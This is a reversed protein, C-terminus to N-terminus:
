PRQDRQRRDPAQRQHRLPQRPPARARGAAPIGAPRRRRATRALQRSTASPLCIMMAAAAQPPIWCGGSTVATCGGRCRRAHRAPRQRAAPGPGSASRGAQQSCGARGTPAPDAEAHFALVSCRWRSRSPQAPRGLPERHVHREFWSSKPRSHGWSHGCCTNVRRERRPLLLHTIPDVRTSRSFSSMEHWLGEASAARRSPADSSCIMTRTTGGGPLGPRSVM